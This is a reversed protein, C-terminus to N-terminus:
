EDPFNGIVDLAKPVVEITFRREDGPYIEGDVHIPVSGQTEVTVKTTRRLAAYKVRDITGRFVKPLHWLLAPLALPRIVTVDLFQDDIRAHPTLKFGGGVTTGNGVTLLFTEQDFTENNVVIKMPVPDFKGLTKILACLYLLLGRKSHNISYSARNVAADFGFGVANAFYTGNMRGVDIKRTRGRVIIDVAQEIKNPISLSKIFDNGSGGPVIALPRGSFLMGPIIESVTGDGGIAVIVDFDKLARRAIDAAQRPGQTFELEFTLGRRKFAEVTRHVLASAKGRGAAPNAIIKYRKATMSSTSRGM